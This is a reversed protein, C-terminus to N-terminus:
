QEEVEVILQKEVDESGIRRRAMTKGERGGGGGDNWQEM